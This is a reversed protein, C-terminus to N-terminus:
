YQKVNEMVAQLSIKPSPLRIVTNKPKKESVIEAVGLCVSGRGDATDVGDFDHSTSTHLTHDYRVLTSLRRISLVVDVKPTLM